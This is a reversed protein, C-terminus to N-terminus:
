CPRHIWPRFCPNYTQAVLSMATSAIALTSSWATSQIIYCSSELLSHRVQQLLRPLAVAPTHVPAPLLQQRPITSRDASSCGECLCRVVQAGDVHASAYFPYEFDATHYGRRTGTFTAFWPISLASKLSDGSM